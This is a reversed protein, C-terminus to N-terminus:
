LYLASPTSLIERNAYVEQATPDSYWNKPQIIIRRDHVGLNAAWWSFTSNATVVHKCHRMIAFELYDAGLEDSAFITDRPFINMQKVWEMDDSFVVLVPDTVHKNIHNLARVYYSADLLGFMKQASPTLYDGRRIHVAVSNKVEIAALLDTYTPTHYKEKLKFETRLQPMVDEFYSNFVWFGKLHSSHRITSIPLKTWIPDKFVTLHAHTGFAHDIKLTLDSSRLRLLWSPIIDVNISFKDLGLIRTNNKEFWSMDFLVKTGLRNALSIGIAYQFIQNGFGGCFEVVIM